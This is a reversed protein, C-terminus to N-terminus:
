FSSTTKPKSQIEDAGPKQTKNKKKELMVQSGQLGLYSILLARNGDGQAMSQSHPKPCMGDGTQAGPEEGTLTLMSVQWYLQRSIPMQIHTTGPVLVM